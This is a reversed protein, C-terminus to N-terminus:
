RRPPSRRPPQRSGGAPVCRCAPNGRCFGSMTGMQCHSGEVLGRCYHDSLVGCSTAAQGEGPLALLGGMMAALTM